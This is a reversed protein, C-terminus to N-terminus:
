RGVTLWVEVEGGDAIFKGEQCLGEGRAVENMFFTEREEVDVPFGEAKAEEVLQVVRARQATRAASQSEKEAKQARKKEKKLAKRFEVDHRRKYDFYFADTLTTNSDTPEHISAPSFDSTAPSYDNM